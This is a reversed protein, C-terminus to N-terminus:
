QVTQKQLILNYIEIKTKLRMAEPVKKIEKYLSLCFLKDEDEENKEPISRSSLSKEIVNAFHEDAPHLKIKKRQQQYNSNKDAQNPTKFCTEQDSNVTETNEDNNLDTEFNSETTNRHVTPQLFQLRKFFLYSSKVPAASGSKVKKIKKLERDYGDRLSKWKKQLELGLVFFILLTPPKRFKIITYTN